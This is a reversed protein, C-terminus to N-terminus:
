RRRHRRITKTQDSDDAAVTGRVVAVVVFVPEGAARKKEARRGSRDRPREGEAAAVREGGSGPPPASFPSRAPMLRTSSYPASGVVNILADGERLIANERETSM